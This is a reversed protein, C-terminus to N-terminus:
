QNCFHFTRFIPFRYYVYNFTAIKKKKSEIKRDGCRNLRYARFKAQHRM